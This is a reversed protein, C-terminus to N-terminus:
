IICLNTVEVDLVVQNRVHSTAIHDLRVIFYIQTPSILFPTYANVLLVYVKWTYWNPHRSTEWHLAFSRSWAGCGSFIM